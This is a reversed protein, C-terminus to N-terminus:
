LLQGQPINQFAENVLESELESLLEDVASATVSERGVELLLPVSLPSIRTLAQHSLRGEYTVLLDSLRAIDTMGRAADARTAELLLHDPQHQLLVDYIM